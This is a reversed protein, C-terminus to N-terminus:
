CCCSWGWNGGGCWCWLVSFCCLEEEALAPVPGLIWNAGPVAPPFPLEPPLTLPFLLFCDAADFSKDLSAWAIDGFVAAAAVSAAREAAIITDCDILELVLPAALMLEISSSFLINSVLPSEPSMIRPSKSVLWSPLEILGLYQVGSSSTRRRFATSCYPALFQFVIAVKTGPRV